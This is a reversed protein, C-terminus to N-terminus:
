SQGTPPKAIGEYYAIAATLMAPLGLITLALPVVISVDTGTRTSALVLASVVVAPALGGLFAVPLGLIVRLWNEAIHRVAWRGASRGILFGTLAALGILILCIIGSIVPWWFNWGM